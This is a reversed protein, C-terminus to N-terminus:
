DEPVGFQHKTDLDSIVLAGNEFLSEQLWLMVEEYREQVM